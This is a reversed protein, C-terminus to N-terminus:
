SKDAKTIEVPVCREGSVKVNPDAANQERMQECLALSPSAVVVPPTIPEGAFLLVYVFSWMVM